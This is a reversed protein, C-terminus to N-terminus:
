VEQPPSDSPRSHERGVLPRVAILYGSAREFRHKLPKMLGAMGAALAGTVGIM